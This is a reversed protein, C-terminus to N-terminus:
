PKRNNRGWALNCQWWLFVINKEYLTYAIDLMDTVFQRQLPHVRRLHSTLLTHEKGASSNETDYLLTYM